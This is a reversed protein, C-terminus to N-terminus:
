LGSCRGPRAAARGRAKGAAGTLTPAPFMTTNEELRAKLLKHEEMLVEVRKWLADMRRLHAQKAIGPSLTFVEAM